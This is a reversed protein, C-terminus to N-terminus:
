KVAERDAKLLEDIAASLKEEIDNSSGVKVFAIEGDPNIVVTTPLSDAKFQRGIKGDDLGVPLELIRSELFDQIQDKTEEQNVALLVVEDNSYKAVTERIKPLAQVCPGCWTAWFDLVVVKGRL